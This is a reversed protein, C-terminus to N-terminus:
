SVLSWPPRSGPTAWATRAAATRKVSQLDTAACVDGMAFRHGAVFAHSPVVSAPRKAAPITMLNINM